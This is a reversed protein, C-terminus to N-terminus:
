EHETWDGVVPPTAPDLDGILEDAPARASDGDLGGYGSGGFDSDGFGSEDFEHGRGTDSRDPDHGSDFELDLDDFVFDEEAWDLEDDEDDEARDDSRANHAPASSNSRPTDGAAPAGGLLGGVAGAGAGAGAGIAAEGDRDSGRASPGSEDTGTASTHTAGVTSEAGTSTPGSAHSADVGTAETAIDTDTTSTGTGAPTTGAYAIGADTRNPRPDTAGNDTVTKDPAGAGAGAREDRKRERDAGPRGPTGTMAASGAPAPAAPVSTGRPPASEAAAAAAIASPSTSAAPATVPAANAPVTAGSGAVPAGAPIGTSPLATAPIPASALPTTAPAPAPPHTPLATPAGAQAAVTAAPDDTVSATPGIAGLAGPTPDADLTPAIDPFAPVDVGTGLFATTYITDMARVVDLREGEVNKQSDINATAQTPDLLAAALDPQADSPTGVAARLAEAAEAARVLRQSVVGMVDALQQGHLEFAAVAAAATSSAAGRWGDAIAGRIETHAQSVSDTLGTATAQWSQAGATLLSPDLAQVNRFIEDHDLGDFVEPNPAYTPDTRTHTGREATFPIERV